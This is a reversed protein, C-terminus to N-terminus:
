LFLPRGSKRQYSSHYHVASIKYLYSRSSPAICSSSYGTCFKILMNFISQYMPSFSFFSHSHIAAVIFSNMSLLLSFPHFITPGQCNYILSNLFAHHPITMIWVHSSFFVSSHKESTSMKILLFGPLFASFLVVSLEETCLDWFMTQSTHSIPHKSIPSVTKTSQALKNDTTPCYFKLGFYSIPRDPSIYIQLPYQM